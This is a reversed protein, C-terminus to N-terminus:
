FARGKCFEAQYYSFAKEHRAKVDARYQWKGERSFLDADFSFPQFENDCIM